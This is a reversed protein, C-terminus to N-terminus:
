LQHLHVHRAAEERVGAVHGAAGSQSACPDRLAGVGECPLRGGAASSDGLEGDEEGVRVRVNEHTVINAFRAPHQHKASSGGLESKWGASM